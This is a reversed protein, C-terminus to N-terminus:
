PHASCPREAGINGRRDARRHRAITSRWALTDSRIRWKPTGLSYSFRASNGARQYILTAGPEGYRAPASHRRTSASAPLGGSLLRAYQRPIPCHPKGRRGHVLSDGAGYAHLRSRDSNLGRTRKRSSPEWSTGVVHMCAGEDRNPRWRWARALAMRGAAAHPTVESGDPRTAPGRRHSPGASQQGLDASHAIIRSPAPANAKLAAHTKPLRM